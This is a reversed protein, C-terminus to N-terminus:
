GAPVPVTSPAPPAKIRVKPEVWKRNRTGPVRRAYHVRSRVLRSGLHPVDPETPARPPLGWLSGAGKRPPSRFGGSFLNVRSHVSSLRIEPPSGAGWM